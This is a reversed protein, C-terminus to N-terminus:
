VRGHLGIESLNRRITRDSVHPFLQMRVESGDRAEGSTILHEAHRLDEPALKRPRGPKPNKHYPDNNRLMQAYNRRVTTPALDLKRGIAEFSLGDNHYDFIRAKKTPTCVVM